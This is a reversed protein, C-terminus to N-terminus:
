FSRICRVRYNSQKSYRGQGGLSFGQGWAEINNYESSSWYNDSAFGGIEERNIFLKFLENKGPLYWDTYDNLDLDNCIQAAIGPTSCAAVINLTNQYGSGLATANAGPIATGQCGWQTGTSQDNPAAIFGHTEGEIYGPDGAQLIYAVVGGGYVDGVAPPEGSTTSFSYENGYSTGSSNTAYARVYYTTQPDLGTLVSSFEGTGTGDNTIGTYIEITPNQLTNWVIGRATVEDGGDNTVIGGSVASTQTIETVPTTSVRPPVVVLTGCTEFWYTGDFYNLCGSTHNYIYMGAAPNKIANREEDTMSRIGGTSGSFHAYPVSLFQTTGMILYENNGNLDIATELFFDTNGWDIMEFTGFQPVGQGIVLNVMGYANSITDHIEAYVVDGDPASSRITLQISHETDPLINGNGDRIVTQYSIGQPVQAQLNLGMVIAFLLMIAPEVLHHITPHKNTKNM